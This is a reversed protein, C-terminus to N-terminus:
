RRPAPPSSSPSPPRNRRSRPSTSRARCRTTPRTSTSARRPSSRTSRPGTARARRAASRASPPPHSSRPRTRESLVRRTAATAGLFGRANVDAGAALLASVAKASGADAAWVLPTNGSADGANAEAASVGALRGADGAAAARSIETSPAPKEYKGLPGARPLDYRRPSAYPRGCMRPPPVGARYADVLYPALEALSAVVVDAGGDDGKAARGSDVLATGVGAAKGFAVDNAPSDGVMLVGGRDGDGLGWATLIAAVAAPDPKAPIGADDRTIAPSFPRLGRPAWLAGHLRDVTARTNRTVLATPIAHAELFAALEAAGPMLELTRRGEAEMEEVVASAKAADAPPMAAIAALIDDSGDVGARRYMEGFDLNPRTLTGDMDFVVGRLRKRGGAASSMASM